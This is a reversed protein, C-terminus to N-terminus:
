ATSPTVPTDAAADRFFADLEDLQHMGVRVQGAFPNDLDQILRFLGVLLFVALGYLILAQVTTGVDALLFAALAAAVVAGAVRYGARIAETEMIIEIRTVIRSVDGLNVQLTRLQAGSTASTVIQQLDTDIRELAALAVPLRLDRGAALDVRVIGVFARVHARLREHTAVPACFWLDWHLRRVRAVFESLLREAEKYDAMTASLLIALTFVVAGMLGTLVPLSSIIEWGQEHVVAKAAVLVVTAALGEALLGISGFRSGAL